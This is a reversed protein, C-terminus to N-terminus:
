SNLKNKYSITELEESKFYYRFITMGNDDTWRSRLILISEDDLYIKNIDEIKNLEISTSYQAKTIPFQKIFQLSEKVTLAGSVYQNLSIKYGAGLEYTHSYVKLHDGELRDGLIPLPLFTNLIGSCRGFTM